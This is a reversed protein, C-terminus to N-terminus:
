RQIPLPKKVIALGYTQMEYVMPKHAIFWQVIREMSMQWEFQQLCINSPALFNAPVLLILYLLSCLTIGRSVDLSLSLVFM